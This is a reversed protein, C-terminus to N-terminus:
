SQNTSVAFGWKFSSNDLDIGCQDKECEIGRGKYEDMSFIDALRGIIVALETISAVSFLVVGTVSYFLFFILALTSFSEAQTIEEGRYWKM